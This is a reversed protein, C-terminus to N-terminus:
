LRFGAVLRRRDVLHVLQLEQVSDGSVYGSIREQVSSQSYVKQWSPKTDSVLPDPPTSEKVKAIDANITLKDCQNGDEDLM